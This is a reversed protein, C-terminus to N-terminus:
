QKEIWDENQVLGGYPFVIEPSDGGGGLGGTLFNLLMTSQFKTKNQVNVTFTDDNELKYMRENYPVSEDYLVKTIQEWYMGDYDVIYEGTFSAPNTPDTYIPTYVKKLHEMEIDFLVTNGTHLQEAFDEYMGPTIFGKMRVNDVFNTVTEYTNIYALDEQKEYNQYIVFYFMVLVSLIVAFIYSVANPM